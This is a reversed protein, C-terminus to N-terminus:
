KRLWIGTSGAAACVGSTSCSVSLLLNNQPHTGFYNGFQYNGSAEGLVTKEETIWHSGGDVTKLMTFYTKGDCFNLSHESEGGVAYGTNDNIFFVSHLKISIGSDQVTWNNGGDSTKLIVGGSDFNRANIGGGVAYGTNADTFYISEFNMQPKGSNLLIWTSGGNITKVINGSAGAAYGTDADPFHVTSLGNYGTYPSSQLAWSNGGDGTKLIFNGARSVVYGTNSDTFHVSSLDELRGSTQSTWTIGGDKTKLITGSDGVVYGTSTDAFNVAALYKNTGSNQSVWNNGGDGTKLITGTSGVVWGTNNILQISTITLNDFVTPVSWAGNNVISIPYNNQSNCIDGGGFDCSYLVMSTLVIFCRISLCRIKM